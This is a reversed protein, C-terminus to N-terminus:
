ERPGKPRFIIEIDRVTFDTEIADIGSGGVYEIKLAVNHINRYTAPTTKAFPFVTSTYLTIGGPLVNPSVQGWGFGENLSVYFNVGSTIVGANANKIIVKVLSKLTEPSGDLSLVGTQLKFTTSTGINDYRWRYVDESNPHYWVMKGDITTSFNSIGFITTSIKSSGFTWARINFDFILIDSLVSNTKAIILEKSVPNYGIQSSASYINSWYSLSIKRRTPDQLDMLLDIVRNGDYLYCGKESIWAIGYETKVVQYPQNAGAHDFQSEIYEFDQSVNVILVKNKKFVLLRDAFSELKVIEDGDGPMVDLRNFWTVVDPKKPFSKYIADGLVTGDELMVNGYYTIRNVEVATKYRIKILDDSKYGNIIQYTEPNDQRWKINVHVTKFNQTAATGIPIGPDFVFPNYDTDTFNTKVGKKLDIEAVFHWDTDVAGDDVRRAYIRSGTARKPFRNMVIYIDAYENAFGVYGPPEHTLKHIASEQRIEDYIFTIGFEYDGNLNNATGTTPIIDLNIGLEPPPYVFYNNFSPTLVFDEHTLNDEGSMGTIYVVKQGGAQDVDGLGHGVIEFQFTTLDIPNTLDAKTNVTSGSTLQLYTVFRGLVGRTPASVWADSYLWEDVLYRQDVQPSSWRHVYNEFQTRKNLTLISAISTTDSFDSDNFRLSGDAIFFVAKPVGATSSLLYPSSNIISGNIYTAVYRKLDTFEQAAIVYAQSPNYSKSADYDVGFALFSYGYAFDNISLVASFLNSIYVEQVGLLRIEGNSTFKANDVDYVEDLKLDRPSPANCLGGKFGRLLLVKRPM